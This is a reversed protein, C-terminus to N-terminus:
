YFLYSSNRNENRIFGTSVRYSHFHLNSRFVSLDERSRSKPALNVKMRDLQKRKPVALKPVFM